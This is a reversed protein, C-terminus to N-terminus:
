MCQPDRFDGDLWTAHDKAEDVSMLQIEPPVSLDKEKAFYESDSTFPGYTKSAKVDTIWRYTITQDPESYTNDPNDPYKRKTVPHTKALVFNDNWGLLYVEEPISAATTTSTDEGCVVYVDYASNRGLHCAKNLEYTYDALGPGFGCKFAPGIIWGWFYISALVLVIGGVIWPFNSRNKLPTTRM